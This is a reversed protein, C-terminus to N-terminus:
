FDTALTIAPGSGPRADGAIRQRWDALVRLNGGGVSLTASIAPGIDIREANRQAGGWAGVGAAIQVGAIRAVPRLARAAGDAYLEVRDRLIGGAQGYAELRFGAPLAVDGVGTIGGLGPGGPTGDLGFRQEAVIRVPLSGPQWEVGLAAERGPGSLPSTVRAVAAFKEGLRYALRAGAQGGGLQGAGPTVAPTTGTLSWPLPDTAM